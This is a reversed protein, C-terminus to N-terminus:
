PIYAVYSIKKDEEIMKQKLRSRSLQRLMKKDKGKVKQNGSSYGCYIDLSTAENINEKKFDDM